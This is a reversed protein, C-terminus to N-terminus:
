KAIVFVEENQWNEEKLDGSLNIVNLAVVCAMNECVVRWQVLKTPKIEVDYM